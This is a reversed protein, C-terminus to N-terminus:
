HAEDKALGKKSVRVDILQMNHPLKFNNPVKGLAVVCDGLGSGSIKASLVTPEKELQAVLDNITQDSTGLAKQLTQHWDFIRGLAQWDQKQIAQAGMLVCKGLGKFIEVFQEPEKSALRAVHKIVDVTPMKYGVYVLSIDPYYNLPEIRMPSSWYLLAGGFVSAAVDAGSGRGGQVERVVDIAISCIHSRDCQDFLWQELLAVAAATVAASSGLGVKDSFESDIKLDFGSTLQAAYRKIAALVFQFPKQITISNIDCSFSGLAESLINIVQDSRPTLTLHMRRDVACVVAPYGRLVAHEGLLMISGPASISIKESKL